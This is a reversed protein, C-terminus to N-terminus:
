LLLLSDSFIVTIGGVPVPVKSAPMPRDSNGSERPLIAGNIVFGVLHAARLSGRLADQLLSPFLLPFIVLVSLLAKWVLCMRDLLYVTGVTCRFQDPPVEFYSM